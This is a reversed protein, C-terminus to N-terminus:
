GSSKLNAIRKLTFEHGEAFRYELDIAPYLDVISRVIALGLGTSSDAQSDKYFREYICGTDLPAEGSNSIVLRDSNVNIRIWGFQGSHFIANKLLNTILIHALDTDMRDIFSGSDEIGYTIGSYEIIESYDDITEYLIRNFDIEETRVFQGNEIRFLTLLSQNLSKMRNLTAHIRDMQKILNEDIGPEEMMLQFKSIAIALPTQIEHSANEIFQKQRVYVNENKEAMALISDQLEDLERINSEQRLFKPSIGIEYNRLNLIIMQFPELAKGLINRKIVLIITVLLIYLMALSSLLDELFEDEELTSTFIELLYLKGGSYFSSRLMRVPEYEGEIPVYQFDNNISVGEQIAGEPQQTIRLQSIGFEDTQLLWSEREANEKIREMRDKLGDDINDYVEDIIVFYFTMAWATIAVLLSIALYGTTYDRISRKKM